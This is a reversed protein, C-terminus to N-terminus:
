VIDHKDNWISMVSDNIQFGVIGAVEDAIDNICTCEGDPIDYLPALDGFEPDLLGSRYEEILEDIISDAPRNWDIDGYDWLYSIDDGTTAVSCFIREADGDSSEVFIEINSPYSRITFKDYNKM